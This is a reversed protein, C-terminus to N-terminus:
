VPNDPLNEKDADPEHGEKLLSGANSEVELWTKAEALRVNGLIELLKNIAELYKEM